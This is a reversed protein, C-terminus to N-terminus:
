YPLFIEWGNQICYYLSINMIDRGSTSGGLDVTLSTASQAAMILNKPYKRAIWVSVGTERRVTCAIAKLM